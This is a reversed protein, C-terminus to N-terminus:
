VHQGRQDMTKVEGLLRSAVLHNQPPSSGRPTLEEMGVIERIGTQKEHVAVVLGFVDVHSRPGVLRDALKGLKNGGDDMGPRIQTEIRGFGVPHWLLQEIHVPQPIDPPPVGDIETVPNRRCVPPKEVM